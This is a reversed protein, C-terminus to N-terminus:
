SSRCAADTGCRRSPPTRRRRVSGQRELRGEGGVPAPAEVEGLGHEAAREAVDVVRVPDRVHERVPADGLRVLGRLGREAPEASRLPHEHDLVDEPPDRRDEADVRRRQPVAVEVHGALGRGVALGHAMGFPELRDPRPEAGLAVEVLAARADRREVGRVGVRLAGERDRGHLEADREVERGVVLGAREHVDVLVARHEDVVAAGLHSLAQVRLHQLDRGSRQSDREVGYAQGRGAGVLHRVGRRRGCGRTGVEVAAGHLVRALLDAVPHGGDGPAQEADVLM